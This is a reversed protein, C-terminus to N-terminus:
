VRERCSARGIEVQVFLASTVTSGDFRQIFLDLAGNGPGANGLWDVIASTANVRVIETGLFTLDTRVTYDPGMVQFQESGSVESFGLNPQGTATAHGVAFASLVLCLVLLGALGLHRRALVRTGFCSPETAM